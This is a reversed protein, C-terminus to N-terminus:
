RIHFNMGLRYSLAVDSISANVITMDDDIEFIITHQELYIAHDNGLTINEDHSVHEKIIDDNVIKTPINSVEHLEKDKVNITPMHNLDFIAYITVCLLSCLTTGIICM